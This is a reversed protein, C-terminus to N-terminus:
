GLRLGDQIETEFWGLIGGRECERRPNKKKEPFGTGLAGFGDV